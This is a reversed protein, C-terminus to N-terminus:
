GDRNELRKLLEDAYPDIKEEPANSYNVCDCDGCFARYGDRLNGCLFERRRKGNWIEALSSDKINGLAFRQPLGPPPCPYVNGDICVQLFYFTAACVKRYQAKGGSLNLQHDVVDTRFERSQQEMVILHEVSIQDCIEGFISHFEEREAESKLNADIIKIYISTNKRHEFLYRINSIYKEMDVAVGTIEKYAGSTMGQVSIQIRSIGSEVLEDALVPTLLVANTIVDIRGGFGVARLKRAMEGLGPNMLPEGLGSFTIRKPPEPFEMVNRVIKDYLDMDLHQLPVGQREMTGGAVGRTAHICYFCKLNCMRTSEIYCSYPSDLPIVDWLQARNTDYSPKEIAKM